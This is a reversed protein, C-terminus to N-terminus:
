GNKFLSGDKSGVKGYSNNELEWKYKSDGRRIEWESRKQVM